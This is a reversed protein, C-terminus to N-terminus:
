LDKGVLNTISYQNEIIFPNGLLNTNVYHINSEPQINELIIDTDKTNNNSVLFSYSVNTILFELSDDNDFLELLFTWMTIPYYINNKIYNPKKEMLIKVSNQYLMFQTFTPFVFAKGLFSHNYTQITGKVQLFIKLFPSLSSDINPLINTHNNQTNYFNKFSVKFCDSYQIKKKLFVHCTNTEGLEGYVSLSTYQSPENYLFSDFSINEFFSFTLMESSYQLTESLYYYLLTKLIVYYPLCLDIGPYEIEIQTKYSDFKIDNEFVSCFSQNQLKEDKLCYTIQYYLNPTTISLSLPELFFNLMDLNNTYLPNTISMLEMDQETFLKQVTKAYIPSNQFNTMIYDNENHIILISENPHKSQILKSLYYSSYNGGIIINDYYIKTDYTSFTETSHPFVDFNNEKIMQPFCKKEFSCCVGYIDKKDLDYNLTSISVSFLRNTDKQSDLCIYNEDDIGVILITHDMNIGKLTIDCLIINDNLLQAKIFDQIKEKGDYQTYEIRVPFKKGFDYCEQSPKELISKDYYEWMTDPVIGYEMTTQFLNKIFVGEDVNKQIRANYYMFLISPFFSNLNQKEMEIYLIQALAVSSCSNNNMQQVDYKLFVSNTIFPIM